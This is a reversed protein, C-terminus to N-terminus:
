LNSHWPGLNVPQKCPPFFGRHACAFLPGQGCELAGTVSAAYKGVIRMTIIALLDRGQALNRTASIEHGQAKLHARNIGKRALAPLDRPFSPM